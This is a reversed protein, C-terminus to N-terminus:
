PRSQTSSFHGLLRAVLATADARELLAEATSLFPETPSDDTELKSLLEEMMRAQRLQAMEEASPLRREAFRVHHLKELHYFSGVQTPLMLSVVRGDPSLFALRELYHSAPDPLGINILLPFSRDHLAAPEPETCVIYDAAEVAERSPLEEHDDILLAQGDLREVMRFTPRLDEFGACCFLIPRSPYLELVQMLDHRLGQESVTFCAHVTQAQSQVTREVFEFRGGLATALKGLGHRNSEASFVVQRRKAVLTLLERLQQAGQRYAFDHASDIIVTHVRRLGPFDQLQERTSFLVTTGQRAGKSALGLQGQRDGLLTAFQAQLHAGRADSAVVVLAELRGEWDLTELLSVMWATSKGEGADALLVTNLGSLLLPVAQAQLDKPTQLGLKSLAQLSRQSLEFASGALWTPHSSSSVAKRDLVSV